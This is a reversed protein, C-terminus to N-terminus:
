VWLQSLIDGPICYVVDAGFYFYLTHFPCYLLNARFYSLTYRGDLLSFNMPGLCLVPLAM